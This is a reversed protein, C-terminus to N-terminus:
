VVVKFCLIRHNGTVPNDRVQNNKVQNDTIQTETVQNDTSGEVIEFSDELPLSNDVM